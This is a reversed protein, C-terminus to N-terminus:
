HKRSLIIVIICKNILLLMFTFYRQADKAVNNFFYISSNVKWIILFSKRLVSCYNRELKSDSLSMALIELSNFYRLPNKAPSYYVSTIVRKREAISEPSSSEKKSIPM